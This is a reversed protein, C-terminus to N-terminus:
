ATINSDVINYPTAIDNTINASEVKNMANQYLSVTVGSDEDYSDIIEGTNNILTCKKVVAGEGLKLVPYELDVISTYTDILGYWLINVSESKCNILKGSYNAETNGNFCSYEGTCNVFTGSLEISPAGLKMGFSYQKSSCGQIICFEDVVLSNQVSVIFCTSEGICDKILIKELTVTKTDDGADFYFFSYNNSKCGEVVVDSIVREEINDYIYFFCFDEGKCNKITGGTIKTDETTERLGKGSYFFSRDGSSCNEILMSPSTYFVIDNDSYLIGSAFNFDGSCHCNRITGFLYVVNSVAFCYDNGVCNDMLGGEYIVSQQRISYCYSYDNAKCNMITGYLRPTSLECTQFCYDNGICDRIIGYVDVPSNTSRGFCYDNGECNEIIGSITVQTNLAYCFSNNRAKCNSIRGGMTYNISDVSIFCRDRGICDSIVGTFTLGSYNTRVFSDDGSKCDSIIGDFSIVGNNSRIFSDSTAVCGKIIANSSLVSINTSYGFCQQAGTCDSFMGDVQTFGSNTSYGFCFDGGKCNSINGSIIAAHNSAGRHVGFCYAGGICGDIIGSITVNGGRYVAGFSGAHSSVGTDICNRIIGSITVSGEYSVGFNGSDPISAYSSCSEIIGSIIVNGSNSYGFSNCTNGGITLSNVICNEIKGSITVSGTANGFSYDSATCNIIRGSITVGVSSRGFCSQVGSCGEILGSIVVQNTFNEGFCYRGGKCNRITGEIYTIYGGAGFGCSYSYFSCDEVLGGINGVFCYDAECIVKKYEGRFYVHNGNHTQTKLIINELRGNDINSFFNYDISRGGGEITLNKLTYNNIPDVRLARAGSSTIIVNRADGLGILDVKNGIDLFDYTYNLTNLAYTGPMVFVVARNTESLTNGNPMLSHASQWAAYLADGNEQPTGVPEVVIYSSTTKLLGSLSLVEISTDVYEKDVLSRGTYGSSYNEKYEIGKGSVSNVTITESRVLRIGVLPDPINLIDLLDNEITNESVADNGWQFRDMGNHTGSSVSYAFWFRNGRKDARYSIWDEHLDYEISDTELRYYSGEVEEQLLWNETDTEPSDFTNEGTLNRYVRTNYIYYENAEPEIGSSWFGAITDGIANYAPLLVSLYGSTSFFRQNLALLIVEGKTGFGERVRTGEQIKYYKGPKLSGLSLASLADSYTIEIFHESLAIWDESTLIGDQVDSVQQVSLEHGVKVLPASVSISSQKQNFINWDASSLYGNQSGNAQQISLVSGSKTLPTNATITAQKASLAAQLDEQDLISGAISGWTGNSSSRASWHSPNFAGTTIETAEYIVGDYFCGEGIEYTRASNYTKLGFISKDSLRNIASDNLDRIATRIDAPSILQQNNDPLLTSVQINLDNINKVAM